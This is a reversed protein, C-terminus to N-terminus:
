GSLAENDLTTPRIVIGPPTHRRRAVHVAVTEVIQDDACAVGVVAALIGARGIHDEALSHAEPGRDSASLYDVQAIQRRILAKRDM